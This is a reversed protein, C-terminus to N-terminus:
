IASSLSRKAAVEKRLTIFDRLVVRVMEGATLGRDHAEQELASIQWGPLLLPVEVVEEGPESSQQELAPVFSPEHHTTTGLLEQM